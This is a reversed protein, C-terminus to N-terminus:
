QPVLILYLLLGSLGFCAVAFAAALAEPKNDGPSHFGALSPRNLVLWGSTLVKM